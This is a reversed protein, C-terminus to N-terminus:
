AETEYRKYEIYKALLMGNDYPGMHNILVNLVISMNIEVGKKALLVEFTQFYLDFNLQSMMDEIVINIHNASIPTERLDNSLTHLSEVIFEIKLVNSKSIYQALYACAGIVKILDQVTLTTSTACYRDFLNVAQVFLHGKKTAMYFDFLWEICVIRMLKYRPIDFQKAPPGVQNCFVAPLISCKQVNDPIDCDQFRKFLPLDMIDELSGRKRADFTLMMNLVTVIDKPLHAISDFDYLVDKDANIRSIFATGIIQKIMEDHKFYMKYVKRESLNLVCDHIFSHTKFLFECLTIGISWPMFKEVDWVGKTFLEPPCICYTGWDKSLVTGKQVILDNSISGITEFMCLGFDILKVDFVDNVLVNASKIDNHIIGNNQLHLASQVLQHAVWPLIQIRQMFTLTKAKQLLTSGCHEMGISIKPSNFPMSIENISPTNVLRKALIATECISSLEMSTFNYSKDGMDYKDVQKIVQEQNKMFVQGYSGQGIQKLSQNLDQPVSEFRHPLNSLPYTHVLRAQVYSTM